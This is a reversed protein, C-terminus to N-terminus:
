LKTENYFTIFYRNEIKTNFGGKQLAINIKDVAKGMDTLFNKNPRYNDIFLPMLNELNLTDKVWSYGHVKITYSIKYGGYQNVTRNADHYHKNRRLAKVGLQNLIKRIKSKNVKEM